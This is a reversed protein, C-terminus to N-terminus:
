WMNEPSGDVIAQLVYWENRAKWINWCFVALLGLVDWREKGTGKREESALTGNVMVIGQVCRWMFCKVKMPARQSAM